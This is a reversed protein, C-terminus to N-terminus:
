RLRYAVHCAVCATTVEYLVKYATLLEGEEAVLAFRSAARHMALGAEQMGKPMFQALHSANHSALSSIGLRYEAVKAANDGDEKALYGMIENLALLHDRMNSLMHRQMMDPLPVLIRKDCDEQSLIPPSMILLFLTLLIQKSRSSL